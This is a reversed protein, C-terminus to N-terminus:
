FFSINFNNFFVQFSNYFRVNTALEKLIEEGDQHVTASHDTTLSEVNLMIPALTAKLAHIKASKTSALPTLQVIRTM